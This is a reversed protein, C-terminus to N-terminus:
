MAFDSMNYGQVSQEIGIIRKMERLDISTPIGERHWHKKCGCNNLVVCQAPVGYRKLEWGGGVLTSLCAVGVVGKSEMGPKSVWVTVDSAHPLVFVDFGHKKGMSHLQHTPCAPTCASCVLGERTKLAKCAGDPHSRMCGPLLVSKRQSFLFGSRFSRNMIEAGVMNVHYEVRTKMCTIRDERWRYHDERLAVFSDVNQTYRGLTGLSASEFWESFRIAECLVERVRKPPQLSLYAQWRIFRIADERLDGTAELWAILRELDHITPSRNIIDTRTSPLLFFSILFGRLVDIAPKINQHKKRWEALTSLIRYPAIRVSLARPSYVRWLTGLDLLEFVYEELSRPEELQYTQIYSRLARATPELTDRAEELVVDTFDSIDRYYSSAPIGDAELSYTIPDTQSKM